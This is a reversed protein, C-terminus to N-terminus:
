DPDLRSVIDQISATISAPVNGQTVEKLKLDFEELTMLGAMYYHWHTLMERIQAQTM